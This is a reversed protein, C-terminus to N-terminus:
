GIFRYRCIKGPSLGRYKHTFGTIEAMVGPKLYAKALNEALLRASLRALLGAIDLPLTSADAPRTSLRRISRRDTRRRHAKTKCGIRNLQRKNLM